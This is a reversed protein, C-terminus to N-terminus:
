TDSDTDSVEVTVSRAGPDRLLEAVDDAAQEPTMADTYRTGAVSRREDGEGEWRCFSLTYRTM